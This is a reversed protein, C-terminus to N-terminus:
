GYILRQGWHTVDQHTELLSYYPDIPRLLSDVRDALATQQRQYQRAQTKSDTDLLLSGKLQKLEVKGVKPIAQEWQDAIKIARIHCHRKIRQLDAASQECLDSFDSLLIINFGPKALSSLEATVEKFSLSAAPYQTSLKHNFQNLATLAHLFTAARGSPRVFHQQHDGIVLMGVNDKKSLTHWGQLAAAEAALVSKFVNRTGFFMATRQDVVILNSREKEETYLKTHLKGSRATVRWEIHRADDGPQYPRAEEFDMGRGSIRSSLQGDRQRLKPKIRNGAIAKALAKLGILKAIDTYPGYQLEDTKALQLM